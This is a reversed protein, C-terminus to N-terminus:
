RFKKHLLYYLKGLTKFDIFLVVSTVLLTVLIISAGFDGLLRFLNQAFFEGAIGGRWGILSILSSASVIFLLYAFIQSVRPRLSKTRYVRWAILSLLVPLFYATLGITQLLLDSVVAGFVGIWNQTRQSSSTNYSWDTPSYTVLSVFVLSALSLLFLPIISGKLPKTKIISKQKELGKFAPNLQPLADTRPKVVTELTPAHQSSFDQRTPSSREVYSFSTHFETIRGLDERMERASFYRYEPHKALAKTIVSKLTPPFNDPLPDFERMMIATILVSTEKQPFPLKGTLFEYLNIGVSWIDTQVSRKGDLAEPSMYAFTGSINQSQSTVTTRLARSIGFDALRPTEGQLLINAPKLDRHIIHRSHLFQLGDLIKITTEVAKEVPMKGNRKLWEDLSGDPAYESVIVIQGDYEDADIIPL